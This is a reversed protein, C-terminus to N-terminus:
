AAVRVGSLFEYGRRADESLYVSETQAGDGDWVRGGCILRRRQVKVFCPTGNVLVEWRRVHDSQSPTGEWGYFLERTTLTGITTLIPRNM